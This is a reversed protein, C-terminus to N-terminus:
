HTRRGNARVKRARPRRPKLGAAASDAGGRQSTEAIIRAVLPEAEPHDFLFQTQPDSLWERGHCAIEDAIDTVTKWNRTLLLETL